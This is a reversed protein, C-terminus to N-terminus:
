MIILLKIVYKKIKITKLVFKLTGGNGLVAKNCMQQTKYQDPVYRILFPLNEGAHKCMNKIKLYDPTFIM